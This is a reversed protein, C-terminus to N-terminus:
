GRFRLGAFAEALPLDGRRDAGNSSRADRDRRQKLIVVVSPTWQRRRGGREHRDGSKPAM